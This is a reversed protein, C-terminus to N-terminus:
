PFKLIKLANFCTKLNEESAKRLICLDFRSIRVKVQLVHSTPQNKLVGEDWLSYFHELAETQNKLIFIVFFDVLTAELSKNM